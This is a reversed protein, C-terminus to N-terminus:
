RIKLRTTGLATGAPSAIWIRVDYTTTILREPLPLKVVFKGTESKGAASARVWNNSRVYTRQFEKDSNGKRGPIFPTRDAM